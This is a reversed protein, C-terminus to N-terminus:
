VCVDIGVCDVKDKGLLGMMNGKGGSGVCVCFEGVSDVRVGIVKGVGVVERESTVAAGVVSTGLGICVRLLIANELRFDAVCSLSM